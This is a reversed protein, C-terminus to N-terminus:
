LAGKRPKQTILVINALEKRRLHLGKFGALFKGFFFFM